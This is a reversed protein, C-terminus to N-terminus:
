YCGIATPEQSCPVLQYSPTDSNLDDAENQAQIYVVSFITVAVAVSAIMIHGGRVDKRNMLVFGIVFGIPTFLFAMWWGWTALSDNAPDKVGPQAAGVVSAERVVDEVVIQQDPRANVLSPSLRLGVAVLRDELEEAAEADTPDLGFRHRVDDLDIVLRGGNSAVLNRLREEEPSAARGSSSFAPAVEDAPRGPPNEGVPAPGGVAAEGTTLVVKSAGSSLPPSVTLGVDSLVREIAADTDSGPQWPFMGRLETTSM